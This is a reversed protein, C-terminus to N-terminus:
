SLWSIYIASFIGVYGWIPLFIAKFFKNNITFGMGHIWCVCLSCVIFLILVPNATRLNTSFQNVNFFFCLTIFIALVFSLTRLSGKNFLQYVSNIM